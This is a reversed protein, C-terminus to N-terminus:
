PLRLAAYRAGEVTVEVVGRPRELEVVDGERAGMVARGLPSEISLKGRKADAEDPGVLEWEQRKGDEDSLVVTAGISVAGEDEPREPAVTVIALTDALLQAQAEVGAARGREEEDQSGVLRAREAMLEELRRALRERGARTIWRTQGPSLRPAARVLPEPADNEESTFAKSM